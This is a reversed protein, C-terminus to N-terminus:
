DSTRADDAGRSQVPESTRPSAADETSHSASGVKDSVPPSPQAPVAELRKAFRRGLETLPKEFYYTSLHALSFTLLLCLPRKLYRALTDGSGLWGMMTAPHVVYLAYSIEAIYRLPRTALLRALPTDSVLTSGILGAGLYPRLYQAPGAEPHCSVAFALLLVVQPARRLCWIVVESARSSRPIVCLALTAGALIEDVRYHTAINIYVGNAVRNATVAVALIPILVLGKAGLLWVLLAALLYFHMEVCLSWFHSVHAVGEVGATYNYYYLLLPPYAEAPASQILLIISAGVIALPLIRSLRRVLFASVVTKRLLASTILFGSLSFFLSMGAPGATSNLQLSKPGLPLMHTALVLLISVARWGDLVGLHHGAPETCAAALPDQTTPNTIM